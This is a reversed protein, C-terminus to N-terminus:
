VRRALANFFRERLADVTTDKPGASCWRKLLDRYDEAALDRRGANMFEIQLAM